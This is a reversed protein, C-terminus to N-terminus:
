KINCIYKYKGKQSTPCGSPARKSLSKGFLLNTNFVSSLPDDVVQLPNYLAKPTHTLTDFGCDSGTNMQKTEYYNSLMTDSDRYIVMHVNSHDDITLDADDARKTLHYNEKLKIHYIDNNLSFAGEFLPHDLDHKIDHRVIIRAWGLVGPQHMMSDDEKLGALWWHDSFSADIVHGRYIRYDAPNIKTSVGNQHVVADPHFLDLNPTLHLFLSQNFASLSLRLSDDYQLSKVRPEYNNNASIDRKEFFQDTRPAIKLKINSIPEVRLLQKNNVSHGAFM